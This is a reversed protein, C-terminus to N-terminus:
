RRKPSRKDKAAVCKGQVELMLGAVAMSLGVFGRPSLPHGKFLCSYLVSLMKRTTTVTSCVLPDFSAIVYFIFAQGITSAITCLMVLRLTAPNELMFAWGRWFEGTVLSFTLAITAMSMNVFFLFDYSTPPTADHQVRKQLGGTLGDLCLSGAILLLGSPTSMRQDPDGSDAQGISLLATGAFLLFAFAYDRLAFQSGGLLLQGLMVPLVKASKALISVPFSLGAAWSASTCVKAFVQTAGPLVFPKAAALTAPRSSGVWRRGAAGLVICAGSDFVRLLWVHHFQSGDAASKYRFLDEEMSALTLFSVYIGAAGFCLKWLDRRFRVKENTAELKIDKSTAHTLLPKFGIGGGGGGDRELDPEEEEAQMM